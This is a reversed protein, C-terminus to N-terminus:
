CITSQLGTEADDSYSTMRLRSNGSHRLTERSANSPEQSSYWFIERRSMAVSQRSLTSDPQCRSLTESDVASSPSEGLVSVSALCSSEPDGLQQSACVGDVSIPITLELPWPHIQTDNTNISNTQGYTQM